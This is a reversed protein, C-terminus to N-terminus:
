GRNDKVSPENSIAELLTVAKESRACLAVYSAKDHQVGM